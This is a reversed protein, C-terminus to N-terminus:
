KLSNITAIGFDSVPFTVPRHNYDNCHDCDYYGIYRVVALGYELALDLGLDLYHVFSLFCM